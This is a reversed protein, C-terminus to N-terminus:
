LFKHSFLCDFQYHFDFLIHLQFMNQNWDYTIGQKDQHINLSGQSSYTDVKCAM